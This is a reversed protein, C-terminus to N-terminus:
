ATKPKTSAARVTEKAADKGKKAWPKGVKMESHPKPPMRLLAGMLKKAEDLNKKASM